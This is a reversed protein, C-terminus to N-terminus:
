IFSVADAVLFHIHKPHWLKQIFVGSEVGLSGMVNAREWMRIELQGSGNERAWQLAFQWCTLTEKQRRQM